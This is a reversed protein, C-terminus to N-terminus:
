PRVSGGRAGERGPARARRRGSAAHGAGASRQPHELRGARGERRRRGRTAGHPQRRDGGPGGARGHRGGERRRDEAEPGAASRGAGGPRNESDSRVPADSLPRQDDGAFWDVVVGEDDVKDVGAVWGDDRARAKQAVSGVTGVLAVVTGSGPFASTGEFHRVQVVLSDEDLWVDNALRDRVDTAIESEPRVSAYKVTVADVLAKLGPVTKAVDALLSKAQWSDATGTLTVTGGKATVGVTYPRTGEDRRLAAAVDSQLQADTRAVPEVSMEDVVSRVGRITEAVAVARERALLNGVPGSLEAVGGHVVVRVHEKRLPREDLMHREIAAAIDADPIAVRGRAESTAPALAATLGVAATPEATTATREPTGTDNKCGAMLGVIGGGIALSAVRLCRIKMLNM